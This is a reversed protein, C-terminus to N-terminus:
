SRGHILDELDSEDWMESFPYMEPDPSCKDLWAIPDFGEDEAFRKAFALALDAVTARASLDAEFAFDGVNKTYEERLIKAVLNWVHPAAYKNEAM